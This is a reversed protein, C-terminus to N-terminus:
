DHRGGYHWPSVSIGGKVGGAYADASTQGTRASTTQAGADRLSLFTLWGAVVALCLLLIFRRV